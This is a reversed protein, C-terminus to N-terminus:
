SAAAFFPLVSALFHCGVGNKSTEYRMRLRPQNNHALFLSFLRPFPLFRGNVAQWSLATLLFFVVIWRFISTEELKEDKRAIDTDHRIDQQNDHDFSVSQLSFVATSPWRRRSTKSHRAFVRTYIFIYIYM